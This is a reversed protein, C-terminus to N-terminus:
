LQGEVRRRALQTPSPASERLLWSTRAERARDDLESLLANLEELHTRFDHVRRFTEAIAGLSSARDRDLKALQRELRELDAGLILTCARGEESLKRLEAETVPRQPDDLVRHLREKLATDLELRVEPM